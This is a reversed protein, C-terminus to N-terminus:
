ILDSPSHCLLPHHASYQCLQAANLEDPSTVTLPICSLFQVSVHSHFYSGVTLPSLLGVMDPQLLHLMLLM